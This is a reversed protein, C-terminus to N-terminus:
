FNTKSKFEFKAPVLIVINQFHVCDQFSIFSINLLPDDIRSVFARQVAILLYTHKQNSGIESLKVIPLRKCPKALGEIGVQTTHRHPLNNEPKVLKPKSYNYHSSTEKFVSM